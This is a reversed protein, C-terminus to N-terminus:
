SSNVQKTLKMVREVIDLTSKDELFDYQKKSFFTKKSKQRFCSSTDRLKKEKKKLM